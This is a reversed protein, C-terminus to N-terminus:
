HMGGSQRRNKDGHELALAVAQGVVILLPILSRRYRNKGRLSESNSPSLVM